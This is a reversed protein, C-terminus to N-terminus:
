GWKEGVEDLESNGLDEPTMCVRMRVDANFTLFFPEAIRPVESAKDIEVVLIGTRKGDMETFYAAEPRLTELIQRLKNGAIGERALTNFPEHPMEVNLLIRM